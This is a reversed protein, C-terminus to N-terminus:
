KRPVVCFCIMGMKLLNMKICLTQQLTLAYLITHVIFYWKQVWVYDQILTCNM